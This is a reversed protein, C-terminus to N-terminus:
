DRDAVAMLMGAAANVDGGNEEVAMRVQAAAVGPFLARLQAVEAAITVTQQLLGPVQHDIAVIIGIVLDGRIILDTGANKATVLGGSRPFCFAGSATRM